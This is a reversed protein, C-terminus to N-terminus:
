RYKTYMNHGIHKKAVSAQVIDLNRRVLRRAHRKAFVKFSCRHHSDEQWWKEFFKPQGDIDIYRLGYKDKLVKTKRSKGISKAAYRNLKKGNQYAM